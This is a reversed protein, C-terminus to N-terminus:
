SAIIECGALIAAEVRNASEPSAEAVYSWIEFLDDAAM